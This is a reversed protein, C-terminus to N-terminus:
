RRRKADAEPNASRDDQGDDVTAMAEWVDDEEGIVEDDDSDDSDDNHHEDHTTRRNQEQEAVPIEGDWCFSTVGDRMFQSAVVAGKLKTMKRPVEAHADTAVPISHLRVLRDSSATALYSLEAHNTMPPLAEMAVIAGNIGKFQYLVSGSRADLVFLKCTLDAAILETGGHSCTLTKVASKEQAFVRFEHLHKRQVTTDFIRVLGTRTGVALRSPSGGVFTISVIDARQPLSLADNPLNKARWIEGWMLERAKVRNEAARKRKRMKGSLAKGGEETDEMGAGSGTRMDSVVEAEAMQTEPSIAQRADWVSLPIEEGGYAFHTPESPPEFVVHQLPEPLERLVPATTGALGSEGSDRAQEEEIISYFRFDGASTCAFIGDHAVALGVWRHIGKKMDTNHVTILLQGDPLGLVDIQGNKRALAVVDRQCLRGRATKQVSLDGKSSGPGKVRSLIRVTDQEVSQEALKSPGPLRLEALAGHGDLALLRFSSSPAAGAQHGNPSSAVDMSSSSPAVSPM